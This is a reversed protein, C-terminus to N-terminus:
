TVAQPRGPDKVWQAIWPDFWMRMSALQTRLGSLWVPVGLGLLRILAGAEM